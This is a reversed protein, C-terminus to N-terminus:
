TQGALLLLLAAKAILTHVGRLPQHRMVADYAGQGPREISAKQCRAAIITSQRDPVGRLTLGWEQAHM